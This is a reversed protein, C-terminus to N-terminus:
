GGYGGRVGGTKGFGGRSAATAKTMPPKGVTAAPKTFQNSGLKAKGSNGSYVSSGSANTFKGDATRYLPQSRAYGGRGSLMNGILYGTLLPMFISGSGGSAAQAESGCAGQGHQEECVALSDYRPASEVHLQQAESIAAECDDATLIGNGAAAAEKCSQLDPYAQADVQEERCGSLAFATAGVISLAVTRSRKRM